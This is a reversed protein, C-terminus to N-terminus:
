SLPRSSPTLMTLMRTQSVGDDNADYEAYSLLSPPHPILSPPIPSPPHPIRPYVWGAGRVGSGPLTM